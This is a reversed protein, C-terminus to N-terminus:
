SWCTHLSVSWNSPWESLTSHLRSLNDHLSKVFEKPLCTFVNNGWIFCEIAKWQQGNLVVVVVTDCADTIAKDIVSAPYSKWTSNPSESKVSKNVNNLVHKGLDVGTCTNRYKDICLSNLKRSEGREKREEGKEGGRESHGYSPRPSLPLPLPHSLNNGICM